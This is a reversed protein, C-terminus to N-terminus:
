PRSAGPRDQADAIDPQTIRWHVPHAAIDDSETERPGAPARGGRALLALGVVAWLAEKGRKLLLFAAGLSSAHPVGTLALAALYGADQVGLGGPIFFVLARVLSLFAEFCLVEALSLGSGLLGLFLWTEAAETLFVLFFLIAPVHLSRGPDSFFHVLSQDTKTFHSAQEILRVRFSPPLPLLSLTRPLGSTAGAKALSAGGVALILLAASALTLLSGQGPSLKPSVGAVVLLAALALILGHGLTLLIRRLLLTAMVAPISRGALGSIRWLAAAEGALGASPVCQSASEAMLRTAVLTKLPPRDKPEFLARWGLSDLLLMLPYPLLALFGWAGIRWLLTWVDGLNVRPLFVALAVLPV